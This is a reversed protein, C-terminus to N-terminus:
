DSPRAITEATEIIRNVVAEKPNSTDVIVAGMNKWTDYIVHHRELTQQVEHEQTGWQRPSRTSFRQKLTEDDAYLAIIGTFLDRLEEYNDLIGCVFGLKGEAEHQIEEVSQRPVFWGHTKIFEATRDEPKVSSKPHVYGTKLNTWRALGDDDVDYAIYGRAKLARCATSKGTGASGTVWFLAM